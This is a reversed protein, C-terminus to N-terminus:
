SCAAPAGDKDRKRRCPPSKSKGLGPFGKLVKLAETEAEAMLVLIKRTGHPRLSKLLHAGQAKDSEAARLLPPPGSDFFHHLNLRLPCGPFSFSHSDHGGHLMLIGARGCFVRCPRPVRCHGLGLNGWDRRGSCRVRAGTNRGSGECRRRM